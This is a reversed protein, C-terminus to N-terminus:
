KADTSKSSGSQKNLWLFFYVVGVCGLSFLTLVAAALIM